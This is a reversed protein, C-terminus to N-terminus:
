SRDKDWSPRRARASFPRSVHAHVCVEAGDIKTLDIARIQILFVKNGSKLVFKKFGVHM